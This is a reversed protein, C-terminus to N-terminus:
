TNKKQPAACVIIMNKYYLKTHITPTKNWYEPAYIRRSENHGLFAGWWAFSSNSIIFDDCKSMLYLQEAPSCESVCIYDKDILEKAQQLEDSFLFIQSGPRWIENLAKEYFEKKFIPRNDKIFDLGLRMSIAINHHGQKIQDLYEKINSEDKLTFMNILKKRIKLLPSVDQFYGYLYINDMKIDDITISTTEYVIGLRKELGISKGNQNKKKDEQSQSARNNAASFVQKFSYLKRMVFQRFHLINIAIDYKLSNSDDKKDYDKLNKSISLEDIEYKRKKYFSYERRDVILQVTETSNNMLFLGYGLIFLQNGLGGRM